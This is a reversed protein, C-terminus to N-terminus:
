SLPYKKAIECVSASDWLQIDSEIAFQSASESFGQTSLVIGVAKPNAMSKVVGALERIPQPGVKKSWGKCQIYLTSSQYGEVIVDVGGDGSGKTIQAAFGRRLFMNCLAKELEYSKKSSWWHVGTEAKGDLQIKLITITDKVKKFNSEIFKDRHQILVKQDNPKSIVEVLRNRIVKLASDRKLTSYFFGLLAGIFSLAIVDSSKQIFIYGILLSLVYGILAVGINVAITQDIFKDYEETIQFAKEVDADNLDIVYGDHTKEVSFIDLPLEYREPKILFTM